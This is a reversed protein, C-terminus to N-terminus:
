SAAIMTAARPLDAPHSVVSVTADPICVRAFRRLSKSPGCILITRVGRGRVTDMTRVWEVPRTLQCALLDPIAAADPAIEGTRNCVFPVRLVGTVAGRLLERYEDVAGAMAKSHWPGRTDLPTVPLLAAVARLAVVEGSLVWDDPTNRAALCVSGYIAARAIAAEVDIASGRVAVMRGEHLGAEREMLAGRTVALAIVDEDTLAGAVACAALEGVSHGAVIDPEVGREVLEHHIGLTIATLVPQFTSTRALALPRTVRNVSSELADAACALLRSVHPSERRWADAADAIDTAQGPLLMAVSM